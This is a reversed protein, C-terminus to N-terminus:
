LQFPSGFAVSDPWLMGAGRSGEAGPSPSGSGAGAGSGTDGGIATASYSGSLPCYMPGSPRAYVCDSRAFSPPGLVHCSISVGDVPFQRKLPQDGAFPP